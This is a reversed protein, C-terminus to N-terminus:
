RRRNPHPAKFEKQKSAETQRAELELRYVKWKAIYALAEDFNNENAYGWDLAVGPVLESFMYYSSTENRYVYRLKFRYVQRNIEIEIEM